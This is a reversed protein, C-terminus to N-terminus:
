SLPYAMNSGGISRAKESLLLVEEEVQEICARCASVGFLVQGAELGSGVAFRLLWEGYMICAFCLLLPLKLFRADVQALQIKRGLGSSSCGGKGLVCLLLRLNLSASSLYVNCEDTQPSGMQDIILSEVANSQGHSLQDTEVHLNNEHEVALM